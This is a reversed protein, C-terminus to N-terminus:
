KSSKRGEGTGTEELTKSVNDVLGDLYSDLNWSVRRDGARLEIGCLLGPSTEFGVALKEGLEARLATLITKRTKGDLEFSSHVSVGDKSEQAVRAIAERNEKDLGKLRQVFTLAIQAELKADALDALAKRAVAYVEEGSRLRLDRLFADKQRSVSELWRSRTENVDRRAQEMLEKKRSEAEEAAKRLASERNRSLEDEKRRFSEAREEAEAGKDEADKLRSAILGEREDMAKIIRGYLLFKLLLLLIIFNIVQAIVTFLDIEM